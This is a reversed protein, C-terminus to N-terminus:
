YVLFQFHVRVRRRKCPSPLNEEWGVRMRGKPRAGASIRLLDERPAADNIDSPSTGNPGDQRYSLNGNLGCSLRVVMWGCEWKDERKRKQGPLRISVYASNRKASRKGTCFASSTYTWEMLRRASFSILSRFATEYYRTEGGNWGRGGCRDEM